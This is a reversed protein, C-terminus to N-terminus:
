HGVAESRCGPATRRRPTHASRAAASERRRPAGTPSAQALPRTQRRCAPWRDNEDSPRVGVWSRPATNESLSEVADVFWHWGTLRKVHELDAALTQLEAELAAVELDLSTYLKGEVARRLEEIVRAVPNLEPPYPPQEVLKLSPQRVVLGRHEGARDWVVAQVGGDRWAAIAEAIAEKRM